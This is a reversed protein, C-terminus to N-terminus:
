WSRGCQCGECGYGQIQMFQNMWDPRAPVAATYVPGAIAPVPRVSQLAPQAPAPQVPQVVVGAQPHPSLGAAQRRTPPILAWAVKVVDNIAALPQRAVGVVWQNKGAPQVTLHYDKKAQVALQRHKGLHFPPGRHTAIQPAEEHLAKVAMLMAPILLPIFGYEGSISAVKRQSRIEERTLTVLLRGHFPQVVAMWGDKARIRANPGLPAWEGWEHATRYKSMPEAQLLTM